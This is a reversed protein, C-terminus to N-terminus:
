EAIMQGKEVRANEFIGEGWRVIRGKISAEITQPREGPAYAVVNGSGIISQQWPAFMVLGITALLLAFLGKAIRRAFRSSRALRLSPMLLESYAVPALMTRRRPRIANATAYGNGSPESM